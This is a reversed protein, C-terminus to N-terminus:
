EEETSEVEPLVVTGHQDKHWRLEAKLRAEFEDAMEPYRIRMQGYAWTIVQQCLREEETDGKFGPDPPFRPYEENLRRFLAAAEFLTIRGDLLKVTVCIKKNIRRDLAQHCREMEALQQDSCPQDNVLLTARLMDLGLDRGWEPQFLAAILAVFLLMVVM